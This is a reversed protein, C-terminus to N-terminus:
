SIIIIITNLYLRYNVNLKIKLLRDNKGITQCIDTVFIIVRYVTYVVCVYRVCM